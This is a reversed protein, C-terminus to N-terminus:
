VAIGFIPYMKVKLISILEPDMYEYDDPIGLVILRKNRLLSKFKKLLLNRQRNEMAIICDAWEIEDASIPNEANKDTGASRVDIGDITNFITEATPSRLRNMSCVFLFRKM